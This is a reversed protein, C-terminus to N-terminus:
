TKSGHYSFAKDHLLLLIQCERTTHNPKLCAFRLAEKKADDWREKTTCFKDCETFHGSSNCFRCQKVGVMSPQVLVSASGAPTSSQSLFPQECIYFQHFQERVNSVVVEGELLDLFEELTDIGGSTKLRQSKMM